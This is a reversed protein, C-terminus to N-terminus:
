AAVEDDPLPRDCLGCYFAADGDQRHAPLGCDPCIAEDDVWGRTDHDADARHYAIASDLWARATM